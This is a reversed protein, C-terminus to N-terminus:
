CGLVFAQIRFKEANKGIAEAAKDDDRIARMVRGWPSRHAKQSILYVIVLIFIVIVLFLIQSWPQSLSEFPRPINSIGRPGNTAWLENKLVLRFIEALGITAIALYDSRLRICLKGVFYGVFGCVIMSLLFGFFIPLEYGGIHQKSIPSTILASTYAGIAFFGAIGANFLGTFGWQINLGVTLISYIGGMTLLAIFYLFYGLWIDSM